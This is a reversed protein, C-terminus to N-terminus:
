ANPIITLDVKINPNQKQFEDIIVHDLPLRPPHEHMWLALTVTSDALAAGCAAMAIAVAAAATGLIAPIRKAHVDANAGGLKRWSPSHVQCRAAAVDPARM